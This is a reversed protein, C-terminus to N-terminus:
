LDNKIIAWFTSLYSQITELTEKASDFHDKPLNEEALLRTFDERDLFMITFYLTDDLLFYNGWTYTQRFRYVVNGSLFKFHDNVKMYPTNGFNLVKDLEITQVKKHGKINSVIKDLSDSNDEMIYRKKVYPELDREIYGADDYAHFHITESSKQYIDIVVKYGM